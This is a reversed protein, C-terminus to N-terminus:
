LNCSIYKDWNEKGFKDEGASMLYNFVTHKVNQIDIYYKFDKLEKIAKTIKILEDDNIIYSVLLISLTHENADTLEYIINSFKNLDNPKINSFDILPKKNYEKISILVKQEFIEKKLQEIEELKTM